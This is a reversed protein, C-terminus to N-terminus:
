NFQIGPSKSKKEVNVANQSSISSHHFLDSPNNITNSALDSIPSDYEEIRSTLSSISKKPLYAKKDSLKRLNEM